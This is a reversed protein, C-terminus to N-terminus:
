DCRGQQAAALFRGDFFQLLAHGIESDAITGRQTDVYRLPL